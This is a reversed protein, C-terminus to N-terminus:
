ENSLYVVHFCFALVIIFEKGTTSMVKTKLQVLLHNGSFVFGRSLPTQKYQM